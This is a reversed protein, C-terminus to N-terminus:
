TFGRVGNCRIGEKTAAGVMILTLVIGGRHSFGSEAQPAHLAHQLMLLYIAQEHLAVHLVKDQHVMWHSLWYVVQAM